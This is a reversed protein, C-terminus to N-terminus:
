SSASGVVNWSTGDSVLSVITRGAASSSPKTGVYQTGWTVAHAATDILVLLLQCGVHGSAPNAITVTGSLTLLATGGKGYPDPTYTGGAAVTAVDCGSQANVRMDNNTVTSGPKVAVSPQTSGQSYSHTVDVHNQASGNRVQLAYQQNQTGASSRDV